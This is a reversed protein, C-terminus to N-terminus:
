INCPLQCRAWRIIRGSLVFLQDVVRAFQRNTVMSVVVNRREKTSKCLFAM